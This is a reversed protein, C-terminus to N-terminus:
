AEIKEVLVETYPQRHGQKKRYDKKAMYKYVIVKEGKGHQQIKLSVSAGEVVPQGIKVGEGTQVMLVKDADVVDGPEAKILEMRIVDGESVRYQKGGNEIVAYM